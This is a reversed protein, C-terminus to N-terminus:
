LLLWLVGAGPSLTCYPGHASAAARRANSRGVCCAACAVIRLSVRLQPQPKPRAHSIIIHHYLHYSTIYSLSWAWVQMDIRPQYGGNVFVVDRGNGETAAGAFPMGEGGLLTNAPGSDRSLIQLRFIKRAPM